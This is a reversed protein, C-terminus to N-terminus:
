TSVAKTVSYDKVVLGSSSGVNVWTPKVFVVKTELRRLHGRRLHTRPSAHAGGNDGHRAHREDSLQLIKYSFFPQKGKEVRKKNLASPADVDATTINACNIVSCAQILMMVEDRADLLIQANVQDTDGDYNALAREYFEPLSIFAETPFTKASDKAIGAEVTALHAIRSAPSEEELAVGGMISGYPVFLGGIAVTWRKHAVSWFIPLVFVGGAPHRELISNMGPHLEYASGAEWCLAIRKTAATQEFEGVRDLGDDRTVPAEFAVCPFPLRTLDLHAQKMDNSDILEGNDPLIFKVSKRLFEVLRGLAREGVPAVFRVDRQLERLDEIAHACYNLAEVRDHKM